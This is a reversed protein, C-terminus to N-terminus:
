SSAVQWSVFGKRWMFWFLAGQGMLFLATRALLAVPSDGPIQPYLSTPIFLLLCMIVFPLMMFLMHHILGVGLTPLRLHIFVLLGVLLLCFTLGTSLAVGEMGFGLKILGISLALNFLLAAGLMFSAGFQLNSAVIIGRLAYVAATYYSSMLLIIAADIGAVYDPLLWTVVDPFLLIGPGIVFPMLYATNFLPRTLYLRVTEELAARGMNQMLRPEVVERAVAPVSLALGMVMAALGYFGVEAIDFFYLLVFRDSTRIFLVIIDFVVIPLGNRVLDLYVKVQFAKPSPTDLHELRQLYWTAAVLTAMGTLLVGYFGFFFILSATLALYVSAKFYNTASIVRFKQHAKLVSVFYDYRWTLVVICSIGVLGVRTAVSVDLLFALGVLVACMALMPIMAGYFVAAKLQDIAGFDGDAECRPIRFRMSSRSGLHLYSSYTPLVKLVTWLGFMEPSLLAPRIIATIAGLGRRYLSSSAYRLISTFAAEEKGRDM